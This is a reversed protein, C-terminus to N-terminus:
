KDRKVSPKRDTKIPAVRDFRDYTIMELPLACSDAPTRMWRSKPHTVNVCFCRSTRKFHQLDDDISTEGVYAVSIGLEDLRVEIWVSRGNKPWSRACARERRTRVFGVKPKCCGACVKLALNAIQM